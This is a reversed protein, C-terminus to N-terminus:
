NDGRYIGYDRRCHLFSAIARYPFANLSLATARNSGGSLEVSSATASADPTLTPVNSRHRLSASDRGTRSRVHVAALRKSATSVVAPM